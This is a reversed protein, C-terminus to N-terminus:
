KKNSKEFSNDIANIINEYFVLEPDSAKSIKNLLSTIIAQM